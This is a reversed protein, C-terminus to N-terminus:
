IEEAVKSNSWLKNFLEIFLKGQENFSSVSFLFNNKFDSSFHNIIWVDTDVVVITFNNNEYTEILRLDIQGDFKKVFEKINEVNIKESKYTNVVIRVKSEIKANSIINQILLINELNASPLYISSKYIYSKRRIEGIFENAYNDSIIRSKLIKSNNDIELEKEIAKLRDTIEQYGLYVVGIIILSQSVTEFPFPFPFYYRFFYPIIALYVGSIIVFLPRLKYKLKLM